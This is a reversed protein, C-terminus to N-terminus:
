IETWVNTVAIVATVQGEQRHRGDHVMDHGMARRQYCLGPEHLFTSHPGSQGVGVALTWRSRCEGRDWGQGCHEVTADSTQFTIASARRVFIAKIIVCCCGKTRSTSSPTSPSPLHQINRTQHPHVILLELSQSLGPKRVRDAAPWLDEALVISANM